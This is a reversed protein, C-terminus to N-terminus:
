AEKSSTENKRRLQGCAADIDAGLRRRLTAVIGSQQLTAIFKEVSKADPTKFEREKVENLRILNVHIPMNGLHKRLM